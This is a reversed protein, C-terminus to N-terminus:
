IFTKGAALGQPALCDLRELQEPSLVISAAAANSDIHAPNRTGPIPVIYDDQHLLWAIALQAPSVQLEDAMERFPSFRDHNTQLNEQTYRPNAKRFDDDKITSV